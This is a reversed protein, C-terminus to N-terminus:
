ESRKICKHIKKWARKYGARFRSNMVGYVIWNVSSNVAYLWIFLSYLFPHVHVRNRILFAVTAPFTLLFFALFLSLLSRLLLIDNRTVIRVSYRAVREKQRGQGRTQESSSQVSNTCHQHQHIDRTRTQIVAPRPIQATHNKPHRLQAQVPSQLNINDVRPEVPSQIPVLTRHSQHQDSKPNPEISVNGGFTTDVQNPGVSVRRHSSGLPLPLSLYNAAALSSSPAAVSVTNSPRPQGSPHTITDDPEHQGGSVTNSPGPQGSPHTTTDDPEHQQGVSVTNSPGPQGSPHTTTDDPEHQQGVSVTNSPGPQSSPHTTTDDPEHQGGSVTNSPGPQGSPHTTTDDPEHLQGVSVTNSPGPQGSPHTTTDDPEHQQGVRRRSAIYARYILVNPLGVCAITLVVVAVTVGHGLTFDGRHQLFCMHIKPDFGLTGDLASPLCVLGAALWMVFCALRSTTRSCWKTYLGRQCVCAYRDLSIAALTFMFVVSCTFFVFGNVVCHVSGLVPHRGTLLGAALLPFYYLQFFLDTAVLNALYVTYTSSALRFQGDSVLTFITLASGCLGSVSSVAYLCVLTLASRESMAEGTFPLTTSNTARERDMFMGTNEMM